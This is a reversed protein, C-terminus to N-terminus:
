AGAGGAGFKAGSKLLARTRPAGDESRALEALDEPRDVDRQLSPLSLAKVPVGAERAAELHARASEPGFRNEICDHPRRLLATTGGDRAANLVVGKGRGLADFLAAIDQAKAGAVDGLVVLLADDEGPRLARAAASLARNLGAERFLFAQSGAAHAATAVTDDPTVVVSRGIAAVGSLAELIDGLMALTLADCQERSLAGLLRSKSRGLQKVPVLATNM